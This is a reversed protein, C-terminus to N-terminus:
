RRFMSVPIAPDGFLEYSQITHITRPDATLTADGALALAEGVTAARPDRFLESFFASALEAQPQLVDFGTSGITLFAGASPSFLLRTNLSADTPDVHYATQCGWGLFFGPSTGNRLALIDSKKLLPPSIDWQELNGHGVYDVLLPQHGLESLLDSRAARRGSAHVDATDIAYPQPLIGALARSAAQFGDGPDEQGSAFVALPRAPPHRLVHLTKSVAARVQRVTLAPIRGIGAFPGSPSDVFAEDSPIEADTADRVYESPIISTDSPNAPCAGSRCSLYHHYDFSDAGVLLVDRVGLAHRALAVYTKIAAPDAVGGSYRAYVDSVAAVKVSVGHARHYAILPSLAALFRRPTIVLLAARGRLLSAISRIPAIRSPHLLAAGAALFYRGARTVAFSATYTSGARHLAIGRLLTPTAPPLTVHGSELSLSWVTVDPTTFGSVDVRRAAPLSAELWNHPAVLRRPYFLSWSAIEISDVTDANRVDGPVTFRLLNMGLRLLSAPIRVSLDHRDTGSFRTEAAFRGNLDVILHHQPGSGPEDSFGRIQVALRATGRPVRASLRFADSVHVPTGTSTVQAFFWPSGHALPDYISRRAEFYSSRGTTVAASNGPAAATTSPSVAARSDAKVIYTNGVAYRTRRIGAAFGVASSSGLVPGGLVLRAVPRGSSVVALSSASVGSWDIGHALLESGTLRYIGTRTVTLALGSTPLRQLATRAPGAISTDRSFSVITAAALLATAFPRFM